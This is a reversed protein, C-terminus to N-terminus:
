AEPGRRYCRRLAARFAAIQELSLRALRAELQARGALAAPDRAAEDESLQSAERRGTRNEM